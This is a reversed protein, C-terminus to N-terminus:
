LKGYLEKFEDLRDQEVLGILDPQLSFEVLSKTVKFYDDYEDDFCARYYYHFCYHCDKTCRPDARDEM